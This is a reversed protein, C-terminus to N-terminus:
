NEQFAADVLPKVVKRKLDIGVGCKCGPRTRCDDLRRELAAELVITREVSNQQSCISATRGRRSTSSCGSIIVPAGFSSKRTRSQCRISRWLYHLVFPSRM